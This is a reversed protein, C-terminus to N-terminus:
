LPLTRLIILTPFRWMKLGGSCCIPANGHISIGNTSVGPAVGAFSAVLRAPDDFGGAYHSAEEVSLMRAGALVMKNM